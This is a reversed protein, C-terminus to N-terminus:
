ALRIPRSRGIFAKQSELLKSLPGNSANMLENLRVGLAEFAAEQSDIYPNIIYIRSMPFESDHNQCRHIVNEFVGLYSM